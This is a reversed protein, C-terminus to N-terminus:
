KIWIRTITRNNGELVELLYIGTPLLDTNVFHSYGVSDIRIVSKMIQDGLLNLIKIQVSGRYNTNFDIILGNASQRIYVNQDEKLLGLSVIGTPNNISEVLELVGYDDANEWMYDYNGEKNLHSLNPEVSGIFTQRVITDPTDNDCYALCFGLVKDAELQV